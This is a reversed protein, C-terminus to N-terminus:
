EGEEFRIQKEVTLRYVTSYVKNKEIWIKELQDDTPYNNFAGVAFTDIDGTGIRCTLQVIFREKKIM